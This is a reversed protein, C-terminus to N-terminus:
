ALVRTTRVLSAILARSRVALLKVRARLANTVLLPRIRYKMSGQLAILVREQDSPMMTSARSAAMASKPLPAPLTGLPATPAIM